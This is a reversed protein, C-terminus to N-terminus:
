GSPETPPPNGPTQTSAEHSRTADFDVNLAAIGPQIASRLVLEVVREKRQDTLQIEPLDFIRSRCPSSPRM